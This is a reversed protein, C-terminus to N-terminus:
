PQGGNTPGESEKSGEVERTQREPAELPRGLAMRALATYESGTSRMQSEYLIVENISSSGFDTQRFPALVEEAGKGEKVRGITVHAAFPRSERAYGLKEMEAEAVAALQAMGGGPDSLGVWLVRAQAETPFAGAGRASVEFPKRGALAAAMRDEIAAPAEAATWGLFKLTVHLNAPAVWGVKLGRREATQRMRAAAEAIKRTVAVSLNAALFLRKKEGV